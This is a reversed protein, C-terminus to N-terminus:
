GTQNDREEYKQILARFRPDDRLPDWAVDRRVNVLNLHSPQSLLTDLIALAQDPQGTLALVKAYDEAVSAGAVADKSVPLM